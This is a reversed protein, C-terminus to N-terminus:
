ENIIKMTREIYTKLATGSVRENNSNPNIKHHYKCSYDNIDKLDELHTDRFLELETNEDKDVEKIFDGLWKNVPLYKPYKIRLYGELVPRISRAINKLDESTSSEEETFELLNYFDDFYEGRTDPVIDWERIQSGNTASRIIRLSKVSDNEIKDWISRLFYKDHSMIICQDSKDAIKLIEQKTCTKRDEDLSNIPDDFVIVKDSISEQNLRSLFFAFALSNKDGQSLINRFCPKGYVRTDGLDVSTENIKICYNSSPKGGAYGTKAAVVEFGAGFKTLYENIKRQYKEFIKDAYEDLSIKAEKKEKTFKQKKILLKQYEKCLMVAEKQHRKNFNHLKELEAMAVKLDGSGATLKKKQISDNIKEVFENHKIIKRKIGQYRQILKTLNKDISISSLPSLHKTQIYKETKETIEKWITNIESFIVGHSGKIPFYEKWFAIGAGNAGYIQQIYMLTQGSFMKRFLERLSIISTKLNKYELNFYDRYAEILMNEDLDRGCFPCEEDVYSLGKRLWSEGESDLHSKIHDKTQKEAVASIDKLKKALLAEIEEQPYDPLEIKQLLPRSIIQRAKKIVEIESEKGSVLEEINKTKKLELFDEISLTEGIIQKQIEVEKASIVGNLTRISQDLRNVEMAYAVGKEGVVFRYLNKKHGHEVHEGSFVNKDIFTSDFIEINPYKKNWRNKFNYNESEGRIAVSPEKQTGLTTRESIYVPDGSKLSRLIASLTTKGKGNEAYIVSVKKFEINGSASFKTFRGINNIEKIKKIM